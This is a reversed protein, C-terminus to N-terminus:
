IPVGACPPPPGHGMAWEPVRHLPDSPLLDADPDEDDERPKVAWTLEDHGDPFVRYELGWLTWYGSGYRDTEVMGRDIDIPINDTLDYGDFPDISHVKIALRMRKGVKSTEKVLQKVRRKLDHSDILDEYVEVRQLSGFTQTLFNTGGETPYVYYMPKVSNAQTGVGHARTAYDEGMAIVRFNQLNSGYQLKLNDRDIGPTNRLDWEWRDAQSPDRRARLRTRKGTGQRHSEILGRIFDLRQKFSSYITVRTNLENTVFGNGLNFFGLPSDAQNKAHTLQEKIIDSIKEDIYKAGGKAHTLDINAGEQPFRTDVSRSLMGIYDLGYIIIDDDGADFDTLIGNCIDQWGGNRYQQLSFHRQFPECEGAQPHLSTLTFFFEGPENVVQSFGINHANEIIAKVTGPGRGPGDAARLVIRVRGRRQKYGTIFPPQGDGDQDPEESGYTLTFRVVPSWESLQGLADLIQVRIDYQGAQLKEGMYPFLLCGQASEVETLPSFTEDWSPVAWGLDLASKTQVRYQVVYNEEEEDPDFHWDAAFRFGALNSLVGIERITVSPRLGEFTFGQWLGWASSLGGPDTGMARARYPVNSKFVGSGPNPTSWRWTSGGEDYWTGDNGVRVTWVRNGNDVREVEIDVYAPCTGNPDIVQGSFATNRPVTGAPTIVNTESPAYNPRDYDILIYAPAGGEKTGFQVSNTYDSEGTKLRIGHNPKDWGSGGPWGQSSRLWPGVIHTIDIATVGGHNGAVASWAEGNDTINADFGDNLHWAPGVGEPWGEICRSVKVSPSPGPAWDGHVTTLYLVASHLYGIDSLDIGFEVFSRHVYGERKGISM